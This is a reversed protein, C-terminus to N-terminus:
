MTERILFLHKFDGKESQVIRNSNKRHCTVKKVFSWVWRSIHPMNLFNTCRWCQSKVLTQHTYGWIFLFSEEEKDAVQCGSKSVRRKWNRGTIERSDQVSLCWNGGAEATLPLSPSGRNWKSERPECQLIKVTSREDRARDCPRNKVWMKWFIHDFLVSSM